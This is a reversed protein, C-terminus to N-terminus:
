RSYRSELLIAYIVLILARLLRVHRIRAGPACSDRSEQCRSDKFISILNSSNPETITLPETYNQVYATPRMSRAEFEFGYKPM